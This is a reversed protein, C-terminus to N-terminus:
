WWRSGGTRITFDRVSLNDRRMDDSWYSNEAESFHRAEFEKKEKKCDSCHHQNKLLRTYIGVLTNKNDAKCCM